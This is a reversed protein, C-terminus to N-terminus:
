RRGSLAVAGGGILAVIGLTIYIMTNQTFRGTLTQSAQDVLSHSSSLGFYLLVAGMILLIIGFVRAGSM